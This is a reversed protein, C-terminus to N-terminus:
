KGQLDPNENGKRAQDSARRKRGVYSAAGILGLFLGAVSASYSLFNLWFTSQVWRLVMLLPFVVGALVLVFGVAIMFRPDRSM